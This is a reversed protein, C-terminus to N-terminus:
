KHELDDPYDCSAWGCSRHQRIVAIVLERVACQILFPDATEHYHWARCTARQGLPLNCEHSRRGTRSNGVRRAPKLGGLPTIHQGLWDLHGAVQSSVRSRYVWPLRITGTLEYVSQAAYNVHSCSRPYVVVNRGDPLQVYVARNAGVGVVQGRNNSHCQASQKRPQCLSRTVRAAFKELQLCIRDV